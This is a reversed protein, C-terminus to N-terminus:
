LMEVAVEVSLMEGAVSLMEVVVWLMAVAVWLMAVVVWLMEVEVLLMEVAVEVSLMAVAVSLMAVVVRRVDVETAPRCCHATCAGYKKPRCVLEWNVNCKAGTTTDKASWLFAREIKVIFKMTGPPMALPTLYYIAQSAIVSKVLATRGVTTILNGNWTPLKGACKDELHQMDRRKLCRVSLPLGLYRMPFTTRTAPMDELIADLDLAECCIPAVASKQFNTCLGTADRFNGLINALNQIDEKFPAVSVAADDAYLSTRLIDRRGRLKHLLGFTTARELIQALPDIALVFLLPSLPDGQRLGRGHRIPLGAVGNLLVRSSSTTLISVIWNRFRSPFGRKQLLDVIYDWRVNDFAKRIDLKFLIASTKSKHLRTALNKVYLFNDHISRKKIFASQANSVLSDMYPGLIISLMKAIIKAIAHILSIPRYDVIEEAGEKKPLLVINASNLWHFNEAHLDGFLHVVEMIAVKIIDWCKKFFAGTYGDPGPAKDSPMLNIANCVEEESFPDGLSQLGPDEFLLEDWNLDCNINKTLLHGQPLISGIITLLDDFGDRSLNRDSKFVMLRAIVDLQTVETLSHLPKQAAFLTEYFKKTSPEPVETTDAEEPTEAEEHTEVEEPSNADLFDDLCNDFGARFHGAPQSQQSQQSQTRARKPPKEGHFKWVHYFPTFGEKILHKSVDDKNQRKENRCKKCTCFIKAPKSPDAFANEVFQKTKDRWEVTFDWKSNIGTYM